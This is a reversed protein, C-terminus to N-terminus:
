KKKMSEFYLCKVAHLNQTEQSVTKVDEKRCDCQQKCCNRWIRWPLFLLNLPVPHRNRYQTIVSYRWYKSLKDSDKQVEEFRSTFLAIILNVLLLNTILMYFAAIVIVAWDYDVCREYTGPQNEWVSTEFTCNGNVGNNDGQLDELFLEGYIQWYPLAIIKWIRWYQVGEPSWMDYHSPYMNAHYLVGTCMMFIILIWVFKFLELLMEGIMIIKPGFYSHVIMCQLFRMYMLFLGLSYLRLSARHYVSSTFFRVWIAQILVVHSLFTLITWFNFLFRKMKFWYTHKRRRFMRPRILNPFGFEELLDAFLWLYLLWEYIGIDSISSIIKLDTLVFASFEIILAMLFIYHIFFKMLPSFWAQIRRTCGNCCCANRFCDWFKAAAESTGIPFCIQENYWIRNLHRQICPHGIVDIMNHEHACIMPSVHIGWVDDKKEMLSMADYESEEYLSSQMHVVREEFLRSHDLLDKYLQRDKASTAKNAMNKLISSAMVATLLQNKCRSWFVGAIEVRNTFLAWALLDHFYGEDDDLTPHVTGPRIENTITAYNLLQQCMLRGSDCITQSRAVHRKCNTSGNGAIGKMKGQCTCWIQECVDASIRHHISHIKRCDKARCNECQLTENYLTEFHNYNFEVGNQLMASVYDVRDAIIAELLLLQLDKEKNKYTKEQIFQYAIYFYLSLSGPSLSLQYSKMLSQINFNKDNVINLTVTNRTCHEEHKQKKDAEQEQPQRYMDAEAILFEVSLENKKNLDRLSWGKIIAEVVAEEMKLGEDNNVDYITILHDFNAITEMTKILKQFRDNLFYTGFLLPAKKKLLRYRESQLPEDLYNSILDAANGSGKILLVPINKKVTAKVQHVTRMDGEVVLLLVPVKMELAQSDHQDEDVFLVDLLPTWRESIDALLTAIYTNFWKYEEKKKVLECKEKEKEPEMNLQFVKHPNLKGAKLLKKIKDNKKPQVAILITSDTENLPTTNTKDKKSNSTEKKFAKNIYSSVGSNKGRYFIWSKNVGHVTNLLGTTFATTNWPRPVYSDCDGVVALVLGPFKDNDETKTCEIIEEGKTETLENWIINTKKTDQNGGDKKQKKDDTNCTDYVKLTYNAYKVKKETLSYQLSEKNDEATVIVQIQKIQEVNNETGAM